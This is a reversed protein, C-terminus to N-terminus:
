RHTTNSTKFHFGDLGYDYIDLRPLYISYESDFFLTSSPSDIHLHPAMPPESYSCLTNWMRLDKWDKDEEERPEKGKWDKAVRKAHSPGNNIKGVENYM